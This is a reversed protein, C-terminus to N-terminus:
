RLSLIRCGGSGAWQRKKALCLRLGAVRHGRDRGRGSHTRTVPQRAITTPHCRRDHRHHEVASILAQYNRRDVIELRGCVTKLARPCRMAFSPYSSPFRNCRLNYPIAISHTVYCRHCVCLEDMLRRRRTADLRGAHVRLRARPTSTNPPTPGGRRQTHWSRPGTRIQPGTRSGRRVPPRHGAM